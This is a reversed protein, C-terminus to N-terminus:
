RGNVYPEVRARFSGAWGREITPWFHDRQGSSRSEERREIGREVGPITRSAEVGVSREVFWHNAAKGGENLAHVPCDVDNRPGTARAWSWLNDVSPLIQRQEGGSAKWRRSCEILMDPSVPPRRDVCDWCNPAGGEADILGPVEAVSGAWRQRGSSEGDCHGVNTAKPRHLKVDVGIPRDEHAVSQLATSGGGHHNWIRVLPHVPM